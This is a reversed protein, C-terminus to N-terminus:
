CFFPVGVPNSIFVYCVSKIQSHLNIFDCM